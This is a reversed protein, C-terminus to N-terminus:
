PARSAGRGPDASAASAPRGAWAEAVVLDVAAECAAATAPDGCWRHRLRREAADLPPAVADRRARTEAAVAAWCAPSGPADCRSWAQTALLDPFVAGDERAEAARRLPEIGTPGVEDLWRRWAGEGGIEALRTRAVLDALDPAASAVLDAIVDVRRTSTVAECAARTFAADEGASEAHAACLQDRYGLWYRQADVPGFGRGDLVRVVNMLRDDAAARADNACGPGSARTCAIRGTWRVLEASWADPGAPSMSELRSEAM